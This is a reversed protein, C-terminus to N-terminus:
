AWRAGRLVRHRAPQRLRGRVAGPAADAAAGLAGAPLPRRDRRRRRHPARADRRRLSTRHTAHQDRDVDATWGEWCRTSRRRRRRRRRGGPRGRVHDVVAQLNNFSPDRFHARYPRTGGDSVLHVGLEGRPHEVTQFVQGAPVRFGETVLKFHHILAEMSTGMIERIHDLSNGMGDSGIALQAPWAIKKDAVMVPGPGMAQSATSPRSSSGCRSTASRSACCSARGPTPTPRPRCTSTTRRTAATRTPRACTTRCARRACCRARHHRAGHLRGPEPARRGQAAPSSRTPSCSTRSSGLYHASRAGAGRPDHRARGAPHGARRRRPPHVRPEHAPRHDARLDQPDGRPRHLGVTMITTAGLENGGTGLCVLHSAIRNLEMMLVRIVTAREPVDDTIGLLKEVALCYAAEQFLPAVYDMRTCFTVGQTWTRFEMNKEIGTHLYGIGRAPRPSRRATSRSCSGSCATRRRTSRAWTSSSASRASARPRRPSRPGTAAPRRSPRSARPTTTSSTRAHRPPDPHDDATRGGSTPRRSPARGQVRGPHRRAPLGQAAPPRALRGADRHPGARPSRRLRHRLLRLDRARALRQGPLGVVTSPIHPDRTPCRSRSGCGAATPSRAGPPLRRAARPRRRAPLARGLRGLSLEFRLDQDDRLAQAVEVLHERRSTCRSSARPRRRRVRGRRRLRHGCEDLVEALIDVVEDFWGGYPRESPGPCRSRPSWGATAPPTARARARRVHRTRVDVVELPARGDARSTRRAPRSRPRAPRSRAPRRRRGAERRRRRRDQEDSMAAAGEDPLDADRRARRGRRGRRGGRPQRRAAREPDARAARPDRQHLMEPGRRAAPCTSTSPCSTTSARCSRTTTSCAAPRRRVRGDVAGVQARVDPRLGPARGPAMKQSVRGAVIM